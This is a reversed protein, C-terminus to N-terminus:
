LYESSSSKTNKATKTKPSCRHTGNEDEPHLFVLNLTGMVTRHKEEDFINRQKEPPKKDREQRVKAMIEPEINEHQDKECLCKVQQNKPDNREREKRQKARYDM